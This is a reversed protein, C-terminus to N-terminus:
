GISVIESIVKFDKAVYTDQGNLSTYTEGEALFHQVISIRTDRLLQNIKIATDENIGAALISTLTLAKDNCDYNDSNILASRLSIYSIQFRNTQVFGHKNRDADSNDERYCITDKFTINFVIRRTIDAEDNNRLGLTTLRIIGNCTYNEPNAAMAAVATAYDNTSKSINLKTFDMVNTNLFSVFINHRGTAM